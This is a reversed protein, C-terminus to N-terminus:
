IADPQVVVQGTVPRVVLDCFLVRIKVCMVVQDGPGQAATVEYTKRAHM